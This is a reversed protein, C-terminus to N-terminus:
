NKMNADVRENYATLQATLLRTHTRRCRTLPHYDLHRGPIAPFRCISVASARYSFQYSPSRYLFIASVRPRRHPVCAFQRPTRLRPPQVRSDCLAVPRPCAVHPDKNHFHVTDCQICRGPDDFSSGPGNRRWGRFESHSQRLYDDLRPFYIVAGPNRM